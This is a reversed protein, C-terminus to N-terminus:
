HVSGGGSFMCRDWLPVTSLEREAPRGDHFFVKDRCAQAEISQVLRGTRAFALKKPM